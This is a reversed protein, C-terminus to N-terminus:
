SIPWCRSLERILGSETMELWGSPRFSVTRPRPNLFIGAAGLKLAIASNRMDASGAVILFRGQYGAERATSIFDIGFETGLNFDLLILDVPVGRAAERAVIELAEASTGCDGAVELDPESALFRALSARFLGYGDLLVLRIERPPRMATQPLSGLAISDQTM